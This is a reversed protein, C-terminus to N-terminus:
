SPSPIPEDVISKAQAIGDAAIQAALEAAPSDSGAAEADLASVDDTLDLEATVTALAAEIARQARLLSEAADARSTGVQRLATRHGEVVEAIRGRAIQEARATLSVVYDDIEKRKARVTFDAAEAAQEAEARRTEAEEVSRRARAEADEISRRASAEAESILQDHHLQADTRLREAEKQAESLLDAAAKGAELRSREIDEEASRKMEALLSHMGRLAEAVEDGAREFDDSSRLEAAVWKLFQDVQAADYGNKVRTFSATELQEPTLAMRVEM